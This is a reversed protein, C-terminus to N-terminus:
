GGGSRPYPYGHALARELEADYGYVDDLFYVEGSDEVLATSYLVLVAIGRLVHVERTSPGAMAAEIQEREWGPQGRLAWEALSVPDEVRICGHSFDRRARSFLQQAPTGHLYVDWANPFNFKLLGLSNSPGPLQRVRLQGSSLQNVLVEASLGGAQRNDKDVTVMNHRSLYEPDRRLAPVIENRQISFPVNWHPRFIVSELEDEFVPTRHRYARGVIVRMRLAVTRDENYARLEFEPINIVIAPRVSTPLWRWRELTLQLQLIRKEIPTRLARWTPADLIGSPALGHRVQLRQVARVLEGEYIGNDTLAGPPRKLDGLMALRAALLRVDAYPQGPKLPQRPPAPTAAAPQAALRLYEGLREKLARYGRFPPEIGELYEPLKLEPLVLYERVFGGRDLRDKGRITFRVQSPDVRGEHVAGAYRMLAVTLGVDARVRDGTTSSWDTLRSVDYDERNLGKWAAESLVHLTLNGRDSLRGNRFWVPAYGTPEYVQMLSERLDHFDPWRLGPLHGSQVLRRLEGADYEPVGRAPIGCDNFKAGSMAFVAVLVPLLRISKLLKVTAGAVRVTLAIAWGHISSHGFAPAAGAIKRRSSQVHDIAPLGLSTHRGSIRVCVPPLRKHFTWPQKRPIRGHPREQLFAPQSDRFAGYVYFGDVDSEERSFIVGSGRLLIGRNELADHGRAVTGVDEWAAQLHHREVSLIQETVVPLEPFHRGGSDWALRLGDTRQARQQATQGPLKVRQGMTEARPRSNGTGERRDLMSAVNGEEDAPCGTKHMVEDFPSVIACGGLNEMMLQHGRMLVRLSWIWL